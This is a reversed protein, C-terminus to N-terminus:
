RSAEAHQFIRAAKVGCVFTHTHTHICTYICTIIYTHMYSKLMYILHSDPDVDIDMDM